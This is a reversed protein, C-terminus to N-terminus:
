QKHTPAVIGRGVYVLSRSSVTDKFQVSLATNTM